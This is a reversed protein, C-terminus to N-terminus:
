KVSEPPFDGGEEIYKANDGKVQFITFHSKTGDKSSKYKFDKSNWYEIFTVQYAGDFKLKVKTELEGPIILGPVPGGGSITGKVKGPKDPYNSYGMASRVRSIAEIKRKDTARNILLYSSTLVVIIAILIVLTKKYNRFM